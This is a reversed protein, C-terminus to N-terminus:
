ILEMCADCLEDRTTKSNVNVIKLNLQECQTRILNNHWLSRSLYKEIMLNENSAGRYFDTNARVRSRLLDEDPILWISEVENLCLEAIKEPLLAWGEIVTPEAWDAHSKAITEIAPWMAEHQDKADLILNEAASAIYYERYDLDRMPHLAPHTQSTTIVGLAKGIDDTSLCGYGLRSTIMRAVTSKGSFPTGGIFIVSPQSM